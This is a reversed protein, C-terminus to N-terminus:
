QKQVWRAALALQDTMYRERIWATTPRTSQAQESGKKPYM